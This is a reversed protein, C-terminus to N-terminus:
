RLARANFECPETSRGLPHSPLRVRFVQSLHPVRRSPTSFLGAANQARPTWSPDTGGGIPARQLRQDPSSAVERGAWHAAAALRVEQGCVVELLGPDGVVHDEANQFLPAEPYVLAYMPWAWKHGYIPGIITGRGTGPQNKM